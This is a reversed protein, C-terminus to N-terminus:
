KASRAITVKKYTVAAKLLSMCKNLSSPIEKDPCFAKILKIAKQLASQTFKGSLYYSILAAATEEKTNSERITSVFEDEEVQSSAEDEENENDDIIENNAENAEAEIEDVPEIEEEFQEVSEEIEFPDLNNTTKILAPTENYDPKKNALYLQELTM